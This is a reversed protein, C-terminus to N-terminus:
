KERIRIFSSLDDDNKLSDPFVHHISTGTKKMKRRSRFPFLEYLKDFDKRYMLGLGQTQLGKDQLYYFKENYHNYAKVRWTGSTNLLYEIDVDTIVADKNVYPDDRYGFNGNIILRDNLLQSSLLLEVETSTFEADSMRIHTGLQWRSDVQSIIKSLQSSLTASAIVAFDSSPHDVNGMDPTHFKSLLLLYAVQRNIMDETDM